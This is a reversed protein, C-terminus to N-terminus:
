RSIGRIVGRLEEATPLGQLIERQKGRSVIIFPLRMPFGAKGAEEFRVEAVEERVQPMVESKFKRCLGCEESEYVTMRVGEAPAAEEVLRETAMAATIAVAVVPLAFGFRALNKPDLLCSAIFNPIAVLAAALCLGCMAGRAAMEYMLVAHAAFAVAVGLHGAREFGMVFAAVTAAYGATGIAAVWEAGGRCGGCGGVYYIGLIALEAALGIWLAIRSVREV